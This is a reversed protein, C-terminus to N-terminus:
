AFPRMKTTRSSQVRGSFGEALAKGTETRYMAAYAAALDFNTFPQNPMSMLRWWAGALVADYWRTVLEDELSTATALPAAAIQVVMTGTANPTPYLEVLLEPGDFRTSYALPVGGFDMEGPNSPPVANITRGNYTVSLVRAVRQQSPTDLSYTQLDPQTSVTELTHRIVLSKECFEATSDVLAQLALPEPCGVVRPLLRTFLDSVPKM